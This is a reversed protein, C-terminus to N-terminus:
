HLTKRSCLCVKTTAALQMSVKIVNAYVTAFNNAVASLDDPSVRSAAVLESSVQNLKAANDSVSNQLDELTEGQLNVNSYHTYVSYM